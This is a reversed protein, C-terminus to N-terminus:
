AAPLLKALDRRYRRIYEETLFSLVQEKNKFEYQKLLYILSAFFNKGMGNLAKLSVFRFVKKQNQAVKFIAGQQAYIGKKYRYVFALNHHSTAFSAPSHFKLSDDPIEMQKEARFRKGKKDITVFQEGDVTNDFAILRWDHRKMKGPNFEKAFSTVLLYNLHDLLRKMLQEFDNIEMRFLSIRQSNNANIGQPTAHFDYYGNDRQIMFTYHYPWHKNSIVIKETGPSDGVILLFQNLLETDVIM